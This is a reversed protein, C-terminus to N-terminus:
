GKATDEFLKFTTRWFGTDIDYLEINDNVDYARTVTDMWRYQWELHLTHQEFDIKWKGTDITGVNNMGKAIGNDYIETVFKYGMPYDGYITKNCIRAYLERGSLQPYGKAEVENETFDSGTYNFDKTRLKNIMM